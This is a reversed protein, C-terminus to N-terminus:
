RWASEGTVFMLDAFRMGGSKHLFTEIAMNNPLLLLEYLIEVYDSM